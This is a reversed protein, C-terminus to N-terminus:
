GTQLVRALVNAAHTLDGHGLASRADRVAAIISRTFPVAEGPRPTVPILREVIQEVLQNVGDGTLACTALGRGPSAGAPLLDLKNSVVLTLPRCAELHENEETWLARVDFVLVVLDASEMEARARAVGEREIADHGSRLGATDILEVPWGDLATTSTVVDRTTGPQDYVIARQYGLVANVLSSKGTNPPGAVVIRWPQVLHTGVDALESLRALERDADSPRDNNLLVVIRELSNRLAGHYQDLLVSAVRLTPASQLALRAMASIPDTEHQSLWSSTDWPETGSAQLTEAIVTPAVKGGHCHIELEDAQTRRVVVEESTGDGSLWRGFVISGV